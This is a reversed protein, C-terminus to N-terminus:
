RMGVAHCVLADSVWLGIQVQGTSRSTSYKPNWQYDHEQSQTSSFCSNTQLSLHPMSLPVVEQKRVTKSQRTGTLQRREDETEM